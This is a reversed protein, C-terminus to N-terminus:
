RIFTLLAYTAEVGGEGEFFGALEGERRASTTRGGRQHIKNEVANHGCKGGQTVFKEM